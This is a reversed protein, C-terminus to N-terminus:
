RNLYDVVKYLKGDKYFVRLVRMSIRSLVENRNTNALSALKSLSSDKSDFLVVEDGIGCASVHTVDIMCQDMCMLGIIPAKEGNIYVYGRNSLARPLGDAYGVPLTAVRTPSEAKFLHDYSIGEGIDLWKVETINTVFRMIPFLDFDTPRSCYGYLLAGMRILNYHKQPYAVAGISDCVHKIPIHVNRELLQNIVSDFESFQVMDDTESKLALHTFLGEVTLNKFTVMKQIDEVAREHDKYGLRNFGTDIKVHVKANKGMTRAIDNIEKAMDLTFITMTIDLEIAKKYDSGLTVGMVMIPFGNAISLANLYTRISIAERVNAVMLYNCGLDILEHAITHLDHGYANAKVVGAILVHNEINHKLHFYNSRLLDLDIEVRTGRIVETPKVKM